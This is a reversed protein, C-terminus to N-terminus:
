YQSFAPKLHAKHMEGSFGQFNLSPKTQPTNFLRSSPELM